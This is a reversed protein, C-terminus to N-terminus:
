PFPQVTHLHRSGPLNVGGKEGSWHALTAGGVPSRHDLYKCVCTIFSVFMPPEQAQSALTSPLEKEGPERGTRKEERAQLEPARAHIKTARTEPAQKVQQKQDPARKRGATGISPPRSPACALKQWSGTRVLPGLLSSACLSTAVGKRKEKM